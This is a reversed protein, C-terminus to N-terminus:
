AVAELAREVSWGLKNLRASLTSRAIGLDDAWHTLSQTKGKYTIFNVRSSNQTQEIAPIIRCNDKSYGKSNDIRDLSMDSAIEGMDALFAQYSNRWEECVGIGKAGYWKWGYTNPNYCRTKMNKWIRYTRCDDLKSM